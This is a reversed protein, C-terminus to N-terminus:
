ILLTPDKLIKGSSSTNLGSYLAYTNCNKNNNNYTYGYANNDIGKKECDILNQEISTSVPIYFSSELNNNFYRKYMNANTPMLRFGSTINNNTPGSGSYRMLGGSNVSGWICDSGMSTCGAREEDFNTYGNSVNANNPQSPFIASDLGYYDCVWENNQFVPKSNWCEPVIDNRSLTPLINNNNDNNNNDSITNPSSSKIFIFFIVLILVFGIICKQINSM